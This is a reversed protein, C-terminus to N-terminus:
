VFVVTYGLKGYIQQNKTLNRRFRSPDMEAQLDRDTVEFSEYEEDSMVIAVQKM